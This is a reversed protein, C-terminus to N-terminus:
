SPHQFKLGLGQVYKMMATHAVKQPATGRHSAQVIGKVKQMFDEGSYCWALRPNIFEACHALHLAYHFKITFNFLLIHRTHFHQGLATNLQVFAYVAKKFEAAGAASLTYEEANTDPITEIVVSMSLMLKVQRHQLNSDDLFTQCTELLPVPFHRLEAGKGKLAPFHGPTGVYM